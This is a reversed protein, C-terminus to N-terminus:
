ERGETSRWQDDGGPDNVDCLRSRHWRASGDRPNHVNGWEGTSEGDAPRGNGIHGGQGFGESFRWRLVLDKAEEPISGEGLPSFCLQAEHPNQQQRELRDRWAEQETNGSTNLTVTRSLAEFSLSLDVAPSAAPAPQRHCGRPDM